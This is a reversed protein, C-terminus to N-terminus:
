PTVAHVQTAGDADRMTLVGNVVDWETSAELAAVFATEQAMLNDPGAMLTTALTGIEITEDTYTYEGRFTNVGSSGSLLGDAGFEITLESDAETSVVAEKGNNYGTVMWETGALDVPEAAEFTLTQDDATTLTLTGDAVAFSESKDMLDLFAQEAAMLPEPGAMLTVALPGAEFTGDTEATYSGSFSNVGSFGSVSTGDFAATIGAATLDADTVSSEVLNWTVDQLTAPDAVDASSCGPVLTLAAATLVLSLAIRGHM